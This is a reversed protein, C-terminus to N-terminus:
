AVSNFPLIIRQAAECGDGAEDGRLSVLQIALGPGDSIGIAHGRLEGIRGRPAPNQADRRLIYVADGDDIVM